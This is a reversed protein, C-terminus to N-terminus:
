RKERREDDCLRDASVAPENEVLPQEPEPGGNDRDAQASREERDDEDGRRHGSRRAGELLTVGAGLPYDAPFSLPLNVHARPNPDHDCDGDDDNQRDGKERAPARLGTLVLLPAVLRALKPLLRLGLPLRSR